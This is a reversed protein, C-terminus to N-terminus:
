GGGLRAIEERARQYCDVRGVDLCVQGGREYDAIAGSIDQLQERVLARNFYATPSEDNLRLAQTHDEIARQYNGLETYVTGRNSFAVPNDPELEIARSYDEIAGELDGLAGKAMGRNSYAKAQNPNLEITQSCDAIAETYQQLNYYAICRNNYAVWDDGALELAKTCDEVAAEYNALNLYVSCRNVLAKTHDPDLALAQSYDQEAGTYEGMNFRTRGRSYYANVYEPDLRIAQTYDSIAAAPDGAASHALGRNLYANPSNPDQLIAQTYDEISSRYDGLQYSILARQYYAQADNPSEQLVQSFDTLAAELDGAKARALGRNYLADTNNPDLDLTQSYDAIAGDHDARDFRLNARQYYAQSHNPNHRIAQNLAQLAADPQGQEVHTLARDYFDQARSERPRQWLWVALGLTLLVLVFGGLWPLWTRTPSPSAVLNIAEDDPPSDTDTNDQYRELIPALDDLVHQASQYRKSCSYVVMKDIVAALDDSVQTRKRWILTGSEDQLKPLNNPSVGTLAQVAIAGLSYIDSNYQPNGQFQEIPMYVPTGAAITRLADDQAIQQSLAKVSGFDILILEQDHDRRIINEPKVDRHIVEHHHVFVLINLIDWLIQAVTAEPLAQGPLIEESLPHGDVYEKVLYLRQEEQFYALLRPIRDHSGLQELTEAEQEFLRKATELCEIGGKVPSLQKVVCKPLGPRRVDAALYTQGFAGSGLIKIIRYRRDLLTGIVLTKSAGAVDPRELEV